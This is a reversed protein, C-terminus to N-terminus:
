RSTDLFRRLKEGYEPHEYGEVHGYGELTWVSAEPHAAALM